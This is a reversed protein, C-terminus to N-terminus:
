DRSRRGTGCRSSRRSWPSGICWLRQEPQGAAQKVGSWTSVAAEGEGVIRRGRIGTRTVIWEDSTDVMQGLDQNTLVRQPSYMGWGVVRGYWRNKMGAVGGVLLAPRSSLM